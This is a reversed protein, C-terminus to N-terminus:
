RTSCCCGRGPPSRGSSPSGSSSGEPCGTPTTPRRTPWGSGPCCSARGSRAEARPVGHVKRPALTINDLVSRHPFLNYAQFVVGIHRRVEDPDVRPDTIDRGDLEIVGDDVQELLNACRLLTSKGSGSAGILATATGDALELDVGQLVWSSGFVKSVQRMQLVPTM